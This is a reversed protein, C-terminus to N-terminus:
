YIQGVTGGHLSVLALFRKILIERRGLIYLVCEMETYNIFKDQEQIQRINLMILFVM